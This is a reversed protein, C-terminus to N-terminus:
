YHGTLITWIQNHKKDKIGKYLSHQNINYNVLLILLLHSAVYM